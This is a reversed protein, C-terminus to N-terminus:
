SFDFVIGLTNEVFLDYPIEKSPDALRLLIKWARQIEDISGNVMKLEEAPRSQEEGWSIALGRVVKLWETMVKEREIGQLVTSVEEEIKTKLWKATQRIAQERDTIELLAERDLPKNVKPACLIETLDLNEVRIVMVLPSLGNNISHEFGRYVANALGQPDLDKVLGKTEFEPLTM